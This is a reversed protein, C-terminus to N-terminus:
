SQGEQRRLEIIIEAYEEEPWAEDALWALLEEQDEPLERTIWEPHRPAMRLQARAQREGWTCMPCRCRGRSRVNMEMARRALSALCRRLFATM